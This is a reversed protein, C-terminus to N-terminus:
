VAIGDLWAATASPDVVSAFLPCGNNYLPCSSCFAHSTPYWANETTIDQARGKLQKWWDRTEQDNLVTSVVCIKPEAALYVTTTRVVKGRNHHGVVIRAIAQQLENPFVAGTKWDVVEIEGNPLERVLDPRAAIKFPEQGDAIPYCFEYDREVGLIRGQGDFWELGRQVWVLIRPLDDDRHQQSPYRHRYNSQEVAIRETLNIPLSLSRSFQDMEGRLVAHTVNHHALASSFADQGWIGRNYKADYELRCRDFTNLRTPNLLLTKTLKQNV